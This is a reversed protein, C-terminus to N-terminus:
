KSGITANDLPAQGEPIATILNDPLPHISITRDKKDLLVFYKTEDLSKTLIKHLKENSLSLDITTFFLICVLIDIGVLGFREFNIWIDTSSQIEKHFFLCLAAAFTLLFSLLLRVKFIMHKAFCQMIIIFTILASLALPIIPSQNLYDLPVIEMIMM